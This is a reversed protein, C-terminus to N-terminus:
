TSVVNDFGGFFAALMKKALMSYHQRQLRVKSKNITEVTAKHIWWNDSPSAATTKGTKAQKKASFSLLASSSLREGKNGDEVM